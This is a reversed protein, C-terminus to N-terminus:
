NKPETKEYEESGKTGEPDSPHGHKEGQRIPLGLLKRAINEFGVTQRNHKPTTNSHKKAFNIAHGLGHFFNTAQGNKINVKDDSAPEANGIDDNIVSKLVEEQNSILIDIKGIGSADNEPVSTAEGQGELTLEKADQTLISRRKTHIVVSVKDNNVLQTNFENILIEEDPNLKFDNPDGILVLQGDKNFKYLDNFDVNKLVASFSNKIMDRAKKNAAYVVRGDPDIFFIPNNLGFNYPSFSTYKKALPDVSLWRSVVEPKLTSESYITDTEIFYEIKNTRTNFVISGIKRLTDNEFIEPYRGDSLTLIQTSPKGISEWPNPNQGFTIQFCFVLFTLLILKKM